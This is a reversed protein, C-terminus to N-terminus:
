EKTKRGNKVNEEEYDYKSSGSSLWCAAAAFAGLFILLVIGAFIDLM